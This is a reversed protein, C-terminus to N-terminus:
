GCPDRSRVGGSTIHNKYEPNKPSALDDLAAELVAYDRRNQGAANKPPGDEAEYRLRQEIQKKVSRAPVTQVSVSSPGAVLAFLGGLVLIGHRAM